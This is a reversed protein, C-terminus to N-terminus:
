GLINIVDNNLIELVQPRRFENNFNDKFARSMGVDCRWINGGCISNIGKGDHFQPTHGIALYEADPMKYKDLYNRNSKNYEDILFKYKGYLKKNEREDNDNDGFDRNWVPSNDGSCNVIRKYMACDEIYEPIQEKNSSRYNLLYRSISNNVRCISQNQVLNPTLGAHVFLWKGIQICVKYNFGLFNAIIGNPHWAIRREQYGKPTNQLRQIEEKIQDILQHDENEPHLTATYFKYFANHYELFEQPSVYRFDGDINMFEHNGLISIVRGNHKKALSNLYWLLYFTHLSSGEDNNTSGLPVNNQDWNTPRIRDVQDGLQVVYTNGGTWVLNQIFNFIIDNNRKSNDNPLKYNENKLKICKSLILCDILKDFDGHIDGIVIIRPVSPYYTKHSTRLHPVSNSLVFNSQRAFNKQFFASFNSGFISTNKQSKHKKSLKLFKKSLLKKKKYTTTTKSDNIHEINSESENDLNFKVGKRKRTKENINENQNNNSNNNIANETINNYEMKKFIIKNKTKNKNYTFKNKRKYKPNNKKKM